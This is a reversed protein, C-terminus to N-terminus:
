VSYQELLIGCLPSNTLLFSSGTKYAGNVGKGYIFKDSPSYSRIMAAMWLIRFHGILPNIAGM